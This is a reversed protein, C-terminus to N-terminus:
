SRTTKVRGRWLLALWNMKMCVVMTVLMAPWSLDPVIRTASAMMALAVGIKLLEWFMFNFATVNANVSSLRAMGVAMMVAQAVVTAAGYLASWALREGGAVVAFGTAILLGVAAQVAILGWMSIQPMHSRLVLADERTLRKFNEQDDEDSSDDSGALWGNSRSAPMDVNKMLLQPLVM